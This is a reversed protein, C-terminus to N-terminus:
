APFPRSPPPFVSTPAWRLRVPASVRAKNLAAQPFPALCNDSSDEDDVSVVIASREIPRPNSVEGSDMEDDMPAM